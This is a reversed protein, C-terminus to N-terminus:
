YGEIIIWGTIPSANAIAPITLTTTSTTSTLTDDSVIKPSKTFAVTYTITDAGSSNNGLYM